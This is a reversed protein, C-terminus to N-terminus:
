AHPSADSRATFIMFHYTGSEPVFGEPRRNAWQLAQFMKRQNGKETFFFINNACSCIGLQSSVITIEGFRIKLSCITLRVVEYVRSM